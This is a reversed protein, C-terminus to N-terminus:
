LWTMSCCGTVDSLPHGYPSRHPQAQSSYFCCLGLNCWLEPTTVGMQLLRRYYRLALEPQDVYFCHAALSALAEVNAPDLVLVRRHMDEAKDLEGMAEHIRAAALLLHTDGSHKSASQSLVELAAIPQDMRVCVRAVHLAAVISESDRLASRFQKEAERLLGLRYHCQGIRLKWWWDRFETAATAEAALELAKRANGDHYLLYNCLIQCFHSHTLSDFHVSCLVLGFTYRPFHQIAHM